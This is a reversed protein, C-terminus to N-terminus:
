ARNYMHKGCVILIAVGMAIGFDIIGQSHYLTTGQLDAFLYADFFLLYAEGMALGGMNYILFTVGLSFGLIVAIVALLTLFTPFSKGSTGKGLKFGLLICLGVIIGPVIGDIWNTLGLFHFYVMQLVIAVAMGVVAFVNGIANNTREKINSDNM